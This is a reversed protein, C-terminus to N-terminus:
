NPINKTTTKSIIWLHLRIQLDVKFQSTSYGTETPLNSSRSNSSLFSYLERWWRCVSTLSLPLILFSHQWSRIVLSLVRSLSGRTRQSSKQLHDMIIHLMNLPDFHLLKILCWLRARDASDPLFKFFLHSNISRNHWKSHITTVSFFNFTMM